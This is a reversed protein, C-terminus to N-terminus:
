YRSLIVMVHYLYNKLTCLEKDIIPIKQPIVISSYSYNGKILTRSRFISSYTTKNRWSQKPPKELLVSYYSANEMVIVSPVLNLLLQTLMWHEFNEGNMSNHYVGSKMGYIFILSSLPVFRNKTRAHLMIHKTRTLRGNKVSQRTGDSWINPENCNAYMWTGELFVIQHLVELNM